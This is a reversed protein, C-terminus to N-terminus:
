ILIEYTNGSKSTANRGQKICNNMYGNNRGLYRSACSLSDFVLVAKTQQNQLQCKISTSYLGNAFGHRINDARSLWELNEIRNDFRNGNKHNVTMESDLLNELFTTAVLRHVLIDKPQKNKWLTVRYGSEYTKPKLVRQKWYRIGHRNSFTVKGECTRIRGLTSAEYIGEYEPIDKWIEVM